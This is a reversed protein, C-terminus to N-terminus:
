LAARGIGRSSQRTPLYIGDAIAPGSLHYNLFLIRSVLKYNKKIMESGAM